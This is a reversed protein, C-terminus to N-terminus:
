ATTEQVQSGAFKVKLTIEAGDYDKHTLAALRQGLTEQTMDFRQTFVSCVKLRLDRHTFFGNKISGGLEGPAFHM